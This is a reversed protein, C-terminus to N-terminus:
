TDTHREKREMKREKKKKWRGKKKKREKREMKREKKRKIKRREGVCHSRSRCGVRRGVHRPFVDVVVVGRQDTPHRIM